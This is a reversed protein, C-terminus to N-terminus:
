STFNYTKSAIHKSYAIFLNIAGLCKPISFLDFTHSNQKARLYSPMKNGFTHLSTMGHTMQFVQSIQVSGLTGPSQRVDRTQRVPEQTKNQKTKKM